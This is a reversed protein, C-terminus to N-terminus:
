EVPELRKDETAVMKDLLELYGARYGNPDFRGASSALARAMDLSATGRYKSDRLILGCAAVSAAFRQNESADDIKPLIVSSAISVKLERSSNEEPKKYRFDFTGASGSAKEAPIIEYLATITQGAGIEGADVSDDKFDEDNLLRNEYGILRYQDVYEPNFTVQVKSDKAVAFFKSKEKIFVKELQEVNDVYEYNGNGNDAIQEMMNDNLNGRGVGIVTLYIGKDRKAKVLEVLEEVSSAGVNFDGDSGIIIRNNGGPIFSKEALEYAKSIGDYGATSGGAKLQSIAKKIENRRDGFTPNLLVGAKSAYTVISVKDQPRMEDAMATFGAKLLDIRDAGQMSGSQDILYVFNQNPLDEDAVTMGKIGLRLLQHGDAWPCESLESDLSINEGSAPEPYDFTFYNLFEEIRVAQAPPLTNYQLFSRMNAYSAGDADISFTSLPKESAKLFPNEVYEAYNEGEALEPGAEYNGGYYIDDNYDGLTCSDFIGASLLALATLTSLKKSM